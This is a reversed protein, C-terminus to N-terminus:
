SCMRDVLSNASGWAGALLRAALALRSPSNFTYALRVNQRPAGGFRSGAAVVVGAANAATLLRAEDDQERFRLWLFYGGAPVDFEVDGGLEARLTGALTDRRRRLADRLRALHRDYAGDRLLTAVALSTVHNASGGSNFLGHTAFRDIMRPDGLMWGLRLGPGLTKAFTGLRLVGRYGALGAMSPPTGQGDLDVEAYADDEVVLVGHREAVALLERRREVPVVVGTPNHFTPNLSVFAVRRGRESTLADHLARPEMGAANTAVARTRLGCDTFIRRGLDYSFQDVLVVDGPTALTTAILQLAHSTGATVLVHEPGCPSEDTSSVRQALLSRVVLTGRDDGYSLAASGFEALANAYADRLLRVPLLAPELYGPGLDVMGAPSVQQVVGPVWCREHSLADVGEHDPASM